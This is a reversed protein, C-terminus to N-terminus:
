AKITPLSVIFNVEIGAVLGFSIVAPKNNQTHRLRYRGIATLKGHLSEMKDLDNITCQLQFPEFPKMTM